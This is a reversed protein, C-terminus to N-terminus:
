KKKTKTSSSVSFKESINLTQSTHGTGLLSKQSLRLELMEQVAGIEKMLIGKVVEGQSQVFSRVMTEVAEKDLRDELSIGGLTDQINAMMQVEAQEKLRQFEAQKEAEAVMLERLALQREWVVVDTGECLPLPPPPVHIELQSNLCKLNMQGKLFAQYLHQHHVYDKVIFDCLAAQHAPSLPPQCKSLQTQILSIVEPIELGKFEPLLEKTMNAIQAVASWPLGRKVSYM